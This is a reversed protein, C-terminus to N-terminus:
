SRWRVANAVEDVRAQENSVSTLYAIVVYGLIVGFSWSPYQQHWRATYLHSRLLLCYMPYMYCECPVNAYGYQVRLGPFVCLVIM